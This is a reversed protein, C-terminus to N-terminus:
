TPPQLFKVLMVEDLTKRTSVDNVYKWKVLRIIGDVIEIGTIDGDNYCCCGSNFYSPKYDTFEPIVLKKFNLLKVQEELRLITEEDHSQKAANLQKYLRELQTLSEFVPQHTHGTILILNKQLASWEYMMKNHSTKLSDDYAPTNPNLALYSQFPAWVRSVFWKSFWNGDSALDGQHGHTMFVDLTQDGFKMQLLVSEYVRMKEGYVDSLEFAAFPDNDWYLDHNGFVKIFSQRQLFQKEINFSPRNHKKVDSLTNEWLEESDGLNIYVFNNQYYHNLAALYNKEAFAFDDSGNKNGKHQDSLIILKSSTDIALVAGKKGPHTKVDTLLETLSQHVREKNPKSSFRDALRAVPKQLIKQLTKRM